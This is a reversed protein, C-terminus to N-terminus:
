RALLSGAKEDLVARSVQCRAPLLEWDAVDDVVNPLLLLFPVLILKSHALREVPVLLLEDPDALELLEM